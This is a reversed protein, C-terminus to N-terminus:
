LDDYAKGLAKKLAIEEKAELALKKVVQDIVKIGIKSAVWEIM